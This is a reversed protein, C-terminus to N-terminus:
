QYCVGGCVLDTLFAVLQGELEIISEIEQASSGSTVKFEVAAATHEAVAVLAMYTLLPVRSKRCSEGIKRLKSM